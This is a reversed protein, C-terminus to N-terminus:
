ADRLHAVDALGFARKEGSEVVLNGVEDIGTAVGTVTERGTEVRVRRGLTTCLREYTAVLDAEDDHWQDICSSLQTLIEALVQERRIGPCVDALAAAHYPATSPVGGVNIGVGVVMAPGTTTLCREGLVGGVKAEVGSVELLVDNPWKLVAPVELSLLAQVVAVGTVITM